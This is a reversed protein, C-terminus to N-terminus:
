HRWWQSINTVTPKKRNLSYLNLVCAGAEQSMELYDHTTLYQHIQWNSGEVLFVNEEQTVTHIQNYESVVVNTTGNSYAKNM